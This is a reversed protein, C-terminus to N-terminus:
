LKWFWVTNSRESATGRAAVLASDALVFPKVRGFGGAM